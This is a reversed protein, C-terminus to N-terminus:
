KPILESVTKFQSKASQYRTLKKKTNSVIKNKLGTSARAIGQNRSKDNFNKTM